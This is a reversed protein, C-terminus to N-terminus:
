VAAVHFLGIITHLGHSGRSILSPLAPLYLIAFSILSDLLLVFSKLPQLFFISWGGVHSEECNKLKRIIERLYRTCTRSPNIGFLTPTSIFLLCYIFDWLSQIVLFSLRFSYIVPRLKSGTAERNERHFWQFPLVCAGGEEDKHWIILGPETWLWYSITWAHILGWKSM